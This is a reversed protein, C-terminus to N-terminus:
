IPLLSLTLNHRFMLNFLPLSLARGLLGAGVLALLTGVFDILGALLGKHRYLFLSGIIIIVVVADLALSSWSM